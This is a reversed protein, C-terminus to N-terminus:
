KKTGKLIPPPKTITDVSEVIFVEELKAFDVTPLVNIQQFQEGGKNDVKSVMGLILGKPYIGDIGSTILRDGVLVEEENKVYRLTCLNGGIGELIGSVRSGQVIADVGSAHDSLLMIKATNSSVKVVQGVLGQGVVVPMKESVGDRSGKDITISRVWNSPGRGIVFASFGRFKMESAITLLEKLRKNEIEFETLRSNEAELSALRTLLRSNEKKVDVLDFYGGWLGTVGSHLYKLGNQFPSVVTAVLSYGFSSVAPNNTSYSALFLSVCFLLLSTGAVKARNIVAISRM